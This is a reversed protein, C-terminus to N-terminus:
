GVIGTVMALLAASDFPKRLVPTDPCAAAVAESDAFGTVMLFRQEPKLVRAKRIVEAGDMVPMAFDVIVLDYHCHEIASLAIRGDGVSDVIHRDDEFLRAIATRVAADDDVLLLRLPKLEVGSVESPRARPAAVEYCAPLRMSVTTGRGVGSDIDVSGGSQQMVAFVQALGLGSGRGQGKTTYFPEIARRKTEPSMGEGQDTVRIVVIQKDDPGEIATEIRIPGGGPASDRANIVLNLLALELQNLDTRVCAAAPDISMEIPHEAGVSQELMPEIEALLSPVNVPAIELKQRRSFALLQATLKGARQASSLAGNAIRRAREDLASRSILFDLAGVIPTLLNNFDHAIGGTLQGLAELKQAQQGREAIRRGQVVQRLAFLVLIAALAISLIAAAGMSSFFRRAPEDIYKTDLAVHASWGSVRSRNFATYNEFGEFTQGRYIGQTKGSAVAKLVYATGPKGVREAQNLSRAVFRGDRTVIASVEYESRPPLLREFPKTSLLVQVIFGGALPGPAAREVIVCPCGAGDSTIQGLDTRRPVSPPMAALMGAGLPRRLDFLTTGDSAQILLVSVWSPNLAAVMKARRYAGAVDGKVLTDSTALADLAGSTRALEGDAAAIIAESKALSTAEITRRQERAAFGSQFVVFLLLPVLVAAAILWASRSLERM